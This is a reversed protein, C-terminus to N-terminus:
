DGGKKFKADGPYPQQRMWLRELRTTLRENAHTSLSHYREPLMRELVTYEPSLLHAVEHGIVRWIEEGNECQAPDYVIQALLYDPKTWCQAPVEPEDIVQAELSVSWEPSPQFLRLAAMYAARAVRHAFQPEVPM